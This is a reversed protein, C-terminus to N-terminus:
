FLLYEFFGGEADVVAQIRSQFRACAAKVTDKSLGEFAEKIRDILQTKTNCATHNTDKM